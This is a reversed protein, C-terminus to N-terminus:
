KKGLLRRVWPYLWVLMVLGSIVCLCIFAILTFHATKYKGGYDDEYNYKINPTPCEEKKTIIPDSMCAKLQAEAIKVKEVYKKDYEEQSYAQKAKATTAVGIGGIVAGIIVLAIKGFGGGTAPTTEGTGAIIVTTGGGGGGGGTAKKLIVIAIIVVVIVAAITSLQGYQSERQAKTVLALGEAAQRGLTDAGLNEAKQKLEMKTENLNTTVSELATTIASSLIATAAIDAAIDQTAEFKKKFNIDRGATIKITNASITDITVNKITENTINTFSVNEIKKKADTVVKSGQPTAGMGSKSEQIAGITTLATNKVEDSIANKTEDSLKATSVVKVNIKQDLVIDEATLDRGSSIEITNTNITNVTINSSDKSILCSIKKTSAAFQDSAIALQECGITDTLSDSYSQQFGMGADGFPTNVYANGGLSFQTIDSSTSCSKTGLAQAIQSVGEKFDNASPEGLNNCSM